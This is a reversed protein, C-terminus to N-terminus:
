APPRLVASRQPGSHDTLAAGLLQGAYRDPVLFVAEFRYPAGVQVDASSCSPLTREVETTTAGWLRQGPGLLDVGCLFTGDERQRVVEVEAVVFTAGPDAVQPAGGARDALEVSRTLRLLRFDAGGRHGAAGPALQVYREATHTYAYVSFITLYALVALAVVGLLLWSRRRSVPPPPPPVPATAATGLAPVTTTGSV